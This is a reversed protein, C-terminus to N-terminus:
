QQPICSMLKEIRRQIIAKSVPPNLLEGLEKLSVNPHELRLTAIERSKEDLTPLIGMEKLIEIAERQKSSAVALRNANASDCNVLRNVRNKTANIVSQSEWSLCSDHAGTLALFRIISDRKKLYVVMRGARKRISPNIGNRSLLTAVLHAIHKSYCTIELNAPGFPLTLYGGALFAGRLVAADCCKNRILRQPVVNELNLKSDLIGIENLVQFFGDQQQIEIRYINQRRPSDVKVKAISTELEFLDHLLLYTKRATVPDSETHFSHGDSTIRYTGDMHFLSSLEAMKCCRRSPSKRALEEKVRHTSSKM